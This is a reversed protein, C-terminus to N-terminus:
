NRGSSLGHGLVLDFVTEEQAAIVQFGSVGPVDQCDVALEKVTSRFVTKSSTGMQIVGQGSPFM